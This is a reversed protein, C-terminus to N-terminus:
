KQIRKILERIAEELKNKWEKPTHETNPNEQVDEEIVDNADSYENELEAAVPEKDIDKNEKRPPGENM